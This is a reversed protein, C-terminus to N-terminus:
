SAAATDAQLTLVAPTDILALLTRLRDVDVSEDGFVDPDPLFRVSTGSAGTTTAAEPRRDPIGRVYRASWAGEARVNTHVLWSSLAAVVSMGSRALGDPLLPADPVGFFRLDPTAMVPKVVWTGDADQRTDTGRGDDVVSVSGDVHLSVDISCTSGDVAEDLAYALAELVLHTVGGFAFTAL